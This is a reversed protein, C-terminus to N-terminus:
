RLLEDSTVAEREIRGRRRQWVFAPTFLVLSGVAFWTSVSFGNRDILTSVTRLWAWPTIGIYYTWREVFPRKESHRRVTWAPRGDWRRWWPHEVESSEDVQM